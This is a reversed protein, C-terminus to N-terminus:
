SRWPDRLLGMAILARSVGNNRYQLPIVSLSLKQGSRKSRASVPRVLPRPGPGQAIWMELPVEVDGFPHAVTVMIDSYDPERAM